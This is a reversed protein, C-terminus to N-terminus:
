QAAAAASIRQDDLGPRGAHEEVAPETESVGFPPKRAQTECRALEVRDDDSVFVVVM